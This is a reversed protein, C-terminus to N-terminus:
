GDGQLPSTYLLCISAVADSWQRMERIKRQYSLRMLTILLEVFLKTEESLHITQLAKLFNGVSRHAIDDADVPQLGYKTQLVKSIEPEKSGNQAALSGVLLFSLLAGFGLRKM